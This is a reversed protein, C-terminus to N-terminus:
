KELRKPDYGLEKKLKGMLAAPPNRAHTAEGAFQLVRQFIEGEFEKNLCKNKLWNAINRFCTRDAQSRPAIISILADHFSLTQLNISTSNTISISVGPNSTSSASRVQKRFERQDGSIRRTTNNNNKENENRESADSIEATEASNLSDAHVVAEDKVQVEMWGINVLVGIAFRIQKIPLDLLFALDEDSAPEHRENRLIGGRNERSESGAFDLFNVFYGFVMMAKTKGAVEMLRRLEAPLTKGHTKLRIYDLPGTRLPEDEKKLPRGSANVEYQSHWDKIRYVKSM